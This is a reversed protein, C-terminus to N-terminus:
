PPPTKEHTSVSYVHDVMDTVAAATTIKVVRHVITCLATNGYYDQTDRQRDTQINREHARILFTLTKRFYCSSQNVWPCPESFQVARRYLELPVDGFIPHFVLPYTCFHYKRYLVLSTESAFCNLALAVVSHRYFSTYPRDIPSLNPSRPHVKAQKEPLLMKGCHIDRVSKTPARRFKAVKPIQGFSVQEGFKTFKPGPTGHYWAAVYILGESTCKYLPNEVIKKHKDIAKTNKRNEVNGSSQTCAKQVLARCRATLFCCFHRVRPRVSWKLLM